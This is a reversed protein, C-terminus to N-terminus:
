LGEIWNVVIKHNAFDKSLIFADVVPILLEKQDVLCRLLGHRVSSEYALVKGKYQGNQDYIECGEYEYAYHQSQPLPLAEVLFDGFSLTEISSLDPYAEFALLVHSKHYRVSRITLLSQSTELKLKQGPLFRLEPFDTSPKVKVEGKLGFSGVITGVRLWKNM